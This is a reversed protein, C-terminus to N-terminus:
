RNNAYTFNISNKANIINIQKGQVSGPKIIVLYSSYTHCVIKKPMSDFSSNTRHKNSRAHKLTFWIGISFFHIQKLENIYEYWTAICVHMSCRDETTTTPNEEVM